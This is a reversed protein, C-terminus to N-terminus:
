RETRIYSNNMYGYDRILKKLETKMQALRNISQRHNDLLKKEEKGGIMPATNVVSDVKPQLWEITMGLSLLDVVFEEDSFDDIPNKLEFTLIQVTDNMTLSSFKYRIRPNGVVSHLREVEIENIDDASLSLYELAQIKGRYRSFITQYSLTM